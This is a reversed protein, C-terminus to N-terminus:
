CSPWCCANRRGGWCSRATTLRSRWRGSCGFGCPALTICGAVASFPRVPGVPVARCGHWWGAVVARCGGLAVSGVALVAAVLAGDALLPFPLLHVVLM